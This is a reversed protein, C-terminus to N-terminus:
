SRGIRALVADAISRMGSADAHFGDITEYPEAFRYLDILECANAKACERIAECYEEIHRGRPAYPFSFDEKASFRSRALTFCYIAAQPYNRKLKKLMLDYAPIFYCTPDFTEAGEPRLAIARGWDNTGIYAFIVDPSVGDRGLASTRADSCAYSEFEYRPGGCVTSGSISNNVLLEGGLRDIVRGWWTDAFTLVGSKIKVDEKYFEADKPESFWEFTSLSDGLVSFRKKKEERTEINM